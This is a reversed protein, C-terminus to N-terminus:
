DLLGARSAILAAGTISLQDLESQHYIQKIVRSGHRSQIFHAFCRCRDEQGLLVYDRSDDFGVLQFDSITRMDDAVIAATLFLSNASAPQRLLVDMFRPM